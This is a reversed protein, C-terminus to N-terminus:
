RKNITKVYKSLNKVANKHAMEAKRNNKREVFEAEKKLKLYSEYRKSSLSGNEIAEKVACHPESTHTCDSFRCGEAISEIDSFTTDVSDSVDMLQLERMGPTDIVIGGDPLLILERNTTTHRGRAGLDSIEQTYQIEKGAIENIITSKGVGSSGLFAVTDGKNIYKKVEEIGEKDVSSSCIIDIGLAVEQTKQLMEDIDECLDSKTLLVVPNAGSDWALTIYRELRRLNFNENLSMCLFVTDVNSAVIQEDDIFCDKRIFKSKRKLVGHIIVRDEQSKVKDIVVWDGVAPYDERGEAMHMMKGSVSALIEGQECYIRYLGKYEVAVRGIQYDEKFPEFEKEFRENWGLDYLNYNKNM